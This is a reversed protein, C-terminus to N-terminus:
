DNNTIDSTGGFFFLHPSQWGRDKYVIEPKAPIRLGEARKPDQRIFDRYEEMSQLQLLRVVQRTEEYSRMTGLFEDWSIWELAYMEDPRQIQYPGKRWRHYDEETSMGMAVAQARAVHYPILRRYRKTWALSRNGYPLVTEDDDDDDDSDDDDQTSDEQPSDDTAYLRTSTPFIMARGEVIIGAMTTTTSTM